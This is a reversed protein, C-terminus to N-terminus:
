ESPLEDLFQRVPVADTENIRERRSGLYVVLSQAPRGAREAFARLGKTDGAGVSRSAKVEIAWVERGRQLVFDVEAGRRTRFHFL